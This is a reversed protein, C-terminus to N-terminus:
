PSKLGKKVHGEHARFWEPNLCTIGGVNIQKDKVRVRKLIIM